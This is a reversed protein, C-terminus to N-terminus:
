ELKLFCANFGVTFEKSLENLGGLLVHPLDQVGPLTGLFKGMAPKLFGKHTHCNGTDEDIIFAKYVLDLGSIKNESDYKFLIHYTNFGLTDSGEKSDSMIACIYYADLPTGEDLTDVYVHISDSFKQAAGSDPAYRLVPAYFFLSNDRLQQISTFTSGPLTTFEM